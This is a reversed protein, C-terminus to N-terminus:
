VLRWILQSCAMHPTPAETPGYTMPKAKPCPCPQDQPYRYTAMTCITSVANSSNLRGSHRLREPSRCGASSVAPCCAESWARLGIPQAAHQGMGPALSIRTM